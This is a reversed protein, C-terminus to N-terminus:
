KQSASRDVNKLSAVQAAPNSLRPRTPGGSVVFQRLHYDQAHRGSLLAVRADASSHWELDAWTDVRADMHEATLVLLRKLVHTCASCRLSGLMVYMFHCLAVQPSRPQSSALTSVVQALCPCPGKSGAPRLDCVSLQADTFNPKALQAVFEGDVTAEAFADLVAGSLSRNQVTNTYRVELQLCLLLM